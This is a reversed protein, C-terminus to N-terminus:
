SADPRPNHLVRRFRYGVCRATPDDGTGDFLSVLVLLEAPRRRTQVARLVTNIAVKFWPRHTM